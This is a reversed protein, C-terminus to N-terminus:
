NILKALIKSKEVTKQTIIVRLRKAENKTDTKTNSERYNNSKRSIARRLLLYCLSKCYSPSCYSHFIFAFLTDVIVIKFNSSCYSYPSCYLLTWCQYFFIQLFLFDSIPAFTIVCKPPVLIM